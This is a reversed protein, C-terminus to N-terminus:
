TVEEVFIDIRAHAPVQLAVDAFARIAPHDAVGGLFRNLDVLSHFGIRQWCIDMVPQNFKEFLAATLVFRAM